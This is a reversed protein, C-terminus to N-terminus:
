ASLAFLASVGFYGLITLFLGFLVSYGCFGVGGCWDFYGGFLGWFCGLFVGFHGGLFV